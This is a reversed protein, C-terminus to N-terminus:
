NFQKTLFIIDDYKVGYVEEIKSIQPVNPFTKGVEWNRLTDKSVELLKAAADLNYGMNVRLARLTIAM